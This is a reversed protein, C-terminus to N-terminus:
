KKHSIDVYHVCTCYLSYIDRKLFGAKIVTSVYTCRDAEEVCLDYFCKEAFSLNHLITSRNLRCYNMMFYLSILSDKSFAFCPKEGLISLGLIAELM